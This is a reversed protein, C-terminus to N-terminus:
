RVFLLAIDNKLARRTADLTQIFLIAQSHSARVIRLKIPRHVQEFPDGEKSLACWQGLFFDGLPLLHCGNFSTHPTPADSRTLTSVGRKSAGVSQREWAM